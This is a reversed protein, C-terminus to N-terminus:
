HVVLVPIELHKAVAKVNSAHLLAAFGRREHTGMVVLDCRSSETIRAIADPVSRYEDDFYTECQVGAEKAAQEVEGLFRLAAARAQELERAFQRPRSEITVLIPMEGVYLGTVKAHEDAALGVGMAIARRSVESGDTPILIHKFTM